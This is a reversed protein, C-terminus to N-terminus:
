YVKLEDGFLDVGLAITSDNQALKNTRYKLALENWNKSYIVKCNHTTNKIAHNTLKSIYKAIKESSSGDNKVVVREAYAFGYKNEWLAMNVTKAFVVAHYHERENKTGYDINACYHESQTKLYRSVYRRRTLQSTNSLVEDNFTLTLFICDGVALMKGIKDNLRKTRKRRAKNLNDCVMATDPVRWFYNYINCYAKTAQYNMGSPLTGLENYLAFVSRAKNYLKHLNHQLCYAKLEMDNLAKTGNILAKYNKGM